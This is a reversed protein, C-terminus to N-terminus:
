GADRLAERYIAVYRDVTRAVNLDERLAVV